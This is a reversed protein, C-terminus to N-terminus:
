TTREKLSLMVDPLVTCIRCIHIETNGSYGTPLRSLISSPIIDQFDPYGPYGIRHMHGRHILLSRPSRRPAFRPVAFHFIIPDYEAVSGVEGIPQAPCGWTRCESTPRRHSLLAKSVITPAGTARCRLGPVAERGPHCQHPISIRTAPNSHIPPGRSLHHRTM